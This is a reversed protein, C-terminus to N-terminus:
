KAAQVPKNCFDTLKVCIGYWVDGVGGHSFDVAIQRDNV